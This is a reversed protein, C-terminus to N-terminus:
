DRRLLRSMSRPGSPCGAEPADVVEQGDVKLEFRGEDDTRTEALIPQEVTDSRVRIATEASSELVFARVDAGAIPRGERTIITGVVQASAPVTVLMAAIAATTVWHRM